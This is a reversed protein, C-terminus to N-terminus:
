RCHLFGPNSGQPPLFGQLLSHCVVGTNKGPSDGNVSSGPQNCDVSDCPTLCSQAVLCENALWSDM